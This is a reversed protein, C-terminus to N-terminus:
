NYRPHSVFGAHAHTIRPLYGSYDEEEYVAAAATARQALLEAVAPPGIVKIDAGWGALWHWLHGSPTVTVMVRTEYGDDEDECDYCRQDLGLPCDRLLDAVEGRALLEVKVPHGAVQGALGLGQQIAQDLDLDARRRASRGIVEASVFRHLLFAQVDRAPSAEDVALIVLDHGRDVAAQMHLTLETRQEQSVYMGKVVQGNALGRLLAALVAPKFEAPLLVGGGGISQFRDAPLVLGGDEVSQLRRLAAALRHARSVNSCYVAFGETLHAFAREDFETDEELLARVFKKANKSAPASSVWGNAELEQLDRQLKRKGASDSSYRQGTFHVGITALLDEVLVGDKGPDGEPLMTVLLNQREIVSQHAPM